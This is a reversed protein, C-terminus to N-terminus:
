GVKVVAPHIRIRNPINKGVVRAKQMTHLMRATKVSSTSPYFGKRGARLFVRPTFSDGDHKLKEILYIKGTM